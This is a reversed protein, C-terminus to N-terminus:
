FDEKSGKKIKRTRGTGLDHLGEDEIVKNKAGKKSKGKVTAVDGEVLGGLRVYVQYVKEETSLKPDLESAAKEAGNLEDKPLRGEEALKVAQEARALKEQNVYRTM